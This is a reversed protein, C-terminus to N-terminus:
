NTFFGSQQFIHFGRQLIPAFLKSTVRYQHWQLGVYLYGFLLSGTELVIGPGYFLEYFPPAGAGATTFPSCNSAPLSNTAATRRSAASRNV